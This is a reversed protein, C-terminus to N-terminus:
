FGDGERKLSEGAASKEGGTGCSADQFLGIYTLTKASPRQPKLTLAHRFSIKSGPREAVIKSPLWNL